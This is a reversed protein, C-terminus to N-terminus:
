SLSRAWKPLIESCPRSQKQNNALSRFLNIGGDHVIQCVKQYKNIGDDILQLADDWKQEEWDLLASKMYARATPVRERARQLLVRAREVEGNEWELKAAALWVTESDPNAQFAETLVQRAKDVNGQIWCEKARLLWFLEIHPLRKCAAELVEDMSKPTGHQRELNITQMWLARKNPFVELAHSLIARATAVSSNALCTKAEETWTRFRDEKEVEKGITHKVIAKSTLPAQL